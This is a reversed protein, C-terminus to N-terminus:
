AGDGKPPRPRILEPEAATLEFYLSEQKLVAAFGAAKEKLFDVKDESVLVWVMLSNDSVFNGDDMKYTGHVIGGHTHGDFAVDIERLIGSLVEPPVKMGDNYETPLLLICKKLKM